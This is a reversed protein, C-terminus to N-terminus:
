VSEKEKILKLAEEKLHFEPVNKCLAKLTMADIDELTIWKKLAANAVEGLDKPTRRRMILAASYLAKFADKSANIEELQGQTWELIANDRLSPNLGIIVDVLM